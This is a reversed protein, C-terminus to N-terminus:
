FSRVADRGDWDRAAEAVTTFFGDLTPGAQHVEISYGLVDIADHFTIDIEGFRAHLYGPFGAAELRASEARPHEVAIAVHNIGQRHGGSLLDGLSRPEVDHFQQLEVAVPGWQGFAASHDWRVDRGNSQCPDFAVHELKHFPGAGFTSVWLEISRELDSVVFGLHHLPRRVIAAVGSHEPTSM